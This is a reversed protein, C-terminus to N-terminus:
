DNTQAIQKRKNFWRLGTLFVGVYCIVAAFRYAFHMGYVFADARGEIFSTVPYGIKQSMMGYLLLTSVSIGFVMGLNRVLGNISGATGLKDKPATSMILSTNPSQFLSTGLAM